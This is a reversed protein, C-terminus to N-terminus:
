KVGGPTRVRYEASLSWRLWGWPSWRAGSTNQPIVIVVGATHTVRIEDPVWDPSYTAPAQGHALSALLLVALAGGCRRREAAEYRKLLRRDHRQNRAMRAFLLGLGVIGLGLLVYILTAYIDTTM